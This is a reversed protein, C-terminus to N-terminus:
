AHQRALLQRGARSLTLRDVRSDRKADVAKAAVLWWVRYRVAMPHNWGIGRDALRQILDPCTRPGEVLEELLEEVGFVESVLADRLVSLDGSRAYSQGASTLALTHGTTREVLGLTIPV